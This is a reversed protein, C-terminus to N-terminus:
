VSVRAVRWGYIGQETLARDDYRAKMEEDYIYSKMKRVLSSHEGPVRDYYAPDLVSEM